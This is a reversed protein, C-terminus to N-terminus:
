RDNRDLSRTSRLAHERSCLYKGINGNYSGYHKLAVDALRPLLEGRGQCHVVSPRHLQTLAAPLTTLIRSTCREREKLSDSSFISWGQRNFFSGSFLFFEDAWRTRRKEEVKRCVKFYGKRIDVVFTNWLSFCRGEKSITSILHTSKWRNKGSDRDGKDVNKALSFLNSSFSRCTSLLFFPPYRLLPFRIAYLVSYNKNSAALVILIYRSNVFQIILLMRMLAGGSFRGRRGNEKVATHVHADIHESQGAAPDDDVWKDVGRCRKFCVRAYMRVYVPDCNKVSEATKWSERQFWGHIM